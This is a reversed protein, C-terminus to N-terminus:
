RQAEMEYIEHDGENKRDILMSLDNYVREWSGEYSKLIKLLDKDSMGLISGATRAKLEASRQEEPKDPEKGDYKTDGVQLVENINCFDGVSEVAFKCIQGKATELAEFMSAHWCFALGNNGIKGNLKVAYFDKEKKDKRKQVDVPRCILLGAKYQFELEAKDNPDSKQKDVSVHVSEVTAANEPDSEDPILFSCRLLYKLAGTMAKYPAKDQSDAGWGIASSTLCEGTEQDTFIGQVHLSCFFQTTGAKTPADWFRETLVQYTFAIGAEHLAKRVENAVDTAKVYAYSQAQNRGRKEVADIAAMAQVMKAAIKASMDARWLSIHGTM